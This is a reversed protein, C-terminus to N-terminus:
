LEFHLVKQRKETNANHPTLGFGSVVAESFEAGWERGM